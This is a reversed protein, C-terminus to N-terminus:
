SGRLIELPAVEAERVFDAKTRSRKHQRHGRRLDRPPHPAGFHGIIACSRPDAGEGQGQDGNEMMSPPPGGDRQDIPLSRWRALGDVLRLHSPPCRDRSLPRAEGPGSIRAPAPAPDHDNPGPEDDAAGSVTFSIQRWCRRSSRSSSSSLPSSWLWGLVAVCALSLLVGFRLIPRRGRM